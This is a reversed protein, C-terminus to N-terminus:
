NDDIVEADRGADEKPERYYAGRSLGICYCSRQVSLSHEETMFRV